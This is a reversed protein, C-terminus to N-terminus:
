PETGEPEGARAEAMAASTTASAAAPGPTAVDAGGDEEQQLLPRHV